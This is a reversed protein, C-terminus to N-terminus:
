ETIPEAYKDIIRTIYDSEFMNQRLYELVIDDLSVQEFYEDLAKNLEEREEKSLSM